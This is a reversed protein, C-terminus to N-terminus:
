TGRGVRMVWWVLLSWWGLSFQESMLVWYLFRTEQGLCLTHLWLCQRDVMNPGALWFLLLWDPSLSQNRNISISLSSLLYISLPAWPLSSGTTGATWIGNRSRVESGVQPRQSTEWYGKLGTGEKQKNIPNRNYAELLVEVFATIWLKSFAKM